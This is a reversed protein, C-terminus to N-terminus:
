SPIVQAPDVREGDRWVELHLYPGTSAGSSGLAGLAEGRRVATDLRLEHGSTGGPQLHAYLTQWGGGHAVIVYHGYGHPDWGVVAVVGDAAALVPTGLTSAIDIGWHPCMAFTCGGYGTTRRGTVPWSWANPSETGALSAEIEARRVWGIAEEDVGVQGLALSGYVATQLLFGALLAAMAPLAGIVAVGVILWGVAPQVDRMQETIRAIVSRVVIRVAATLLRQLAVGLAPAPM